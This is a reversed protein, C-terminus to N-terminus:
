NQNNYFLKPCTELKYIRNIFDWSGGFMEHNISIRTINSKTIRIINFFFCVNLIKKKYM